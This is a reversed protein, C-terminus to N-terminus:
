REAKSSGQSVRREGCPSRPNFHLHFHVLHRRHFHREGCPSRPNFNSSFRAQHQEWLDSEALLAHISILFLALFELLRCVDSEALLAHISIGRNFLTCVAWFRREGCPSRPNFNRRRVGSPCRGGTARRLSLTSQFLVIGHEATLLPRREGCPSRPNFNPHPIGVSGSRRREGCPSRPNFHFM